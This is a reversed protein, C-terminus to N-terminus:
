SGIKHGNSDSDIVTLSETGIKVKKIHFVQFHRGLTGMNIFTQFDDCKHCRFRNNETISFPLVYKEEKLHADVLDNQYSKILENRNLDTVQDTVQQEINNNNNMNMNTNMNMNM